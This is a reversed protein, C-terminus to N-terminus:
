DKSIITYGDKISKPKADDFQPDKYVGALSGSGSNRDKDRLNGGSVEVLKFDQTMFGEPDEFKKKGPFPWTEVGTGSKVAREEWIDMTQGALRSMQQWRDEFLKFDTIRYQDDTRFSFGMENLVTDNGAKKDAYWMNDLYFEHFDRAISPLIQRVYENLKGIAKKIGSECEGTCPFIAQTDSILPGNGYIFGDALVGKGAFVHKSTFLEGSLMVTDKEFYHAVQPQGADAVGFFNMIAGSKGVYNLIRNSKTVLTESGNGADLTINGKKLKNKGDGSRIYINNALSVVNSDPARLIVGGFNIAEGPEKFDYEKSKSRSEILVGGSGTEDNGALIQVNKEAKIRVDKKTTSIDVAGNARVICDKGAWIQASKGPKFWVDGPASITISGACMRIEAGYGDGIVVAGDELLSIFSETEYFDQPKYRHDIEIPQSTKKPQELYMQSKLETYTPVKHNYEAHTLESQEWTKYDKYHWHFPHLGAYNFLYAHLDLIGSARQMHPHDGSTKIDGTINHEDGKGMGEKGAARYDDDTRDGTGDEPRRIRTPVPLLMRKALTIGKASAIFRRGDLGTNDESLGIPAQTVAPGSSKSGGGGASSKEARKNQVSSEYPAPSAGPSVPEYTWYDVGKPPACVVTRNGQGYYGYFKQTRHFPQQNDYKNEWHAYYPKGKPSMITDADFEQVIDQGTKLTGMAEWPYPSYGQTDNYEGEDMYADREHGATWLQFNYGGVRLLQDHYFGYVGTFENVAMQVMFDDLTVKLGTTSIGGWESAQTADLPRWTSCNPIFGGDEMKLYRKHAEDVRDRSAQTISDHVSEKGTAVAPPIAGLIFGVDAHDHIFLLVRTGPVFSSIETVGLANQSVSTLSVGIVVSRLREVSVRYCNADSTGDIIDGICVHGENNISTLFASYRARPDSSPSLNAGWDSGATASGDRTAARLERVWMSPDAPLAQSTAPTITPRQGSSQFSM